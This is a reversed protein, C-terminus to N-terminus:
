IKRTIKVDGVEGEQLHPYYFVDISVTDQLFNIKGLEIRSIRLGTRNELDELLEAHRGPKVLEIREYLVRERMEPQFTALQELLMTLSVIALNTFAMETYSSKSNSLANIVAVGIVMFLYTMEKIPIPDTRYRLVGFIAFLGLAMGLDLDLKKLTFCIFFVLVNIMYYTFLYDKNRHIRFYVWQVLVIVFFLDVAFRLLLKYIDDDFYPVGLFEMM